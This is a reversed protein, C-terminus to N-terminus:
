PYTLVQTRKAPLVSSPCISLLAAGAEAGMSAKQHTDSHARLVSPPSHTVMVMVTGLSTPCYLAGKGILSYGM